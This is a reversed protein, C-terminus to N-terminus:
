FVYVGGALLGLGSIGVGDTLGSFGEFMASGTLRFRPYKKFRVFVGGEGFFGKASYSVLGLDYRIISLGAGAFPEFSVVNEIQKAQSFRHLLGVSIASAGGGIAFMGKVTNRDTIDYLVMPVMYSGLVFGVGFKGIKAPKVVSVPVAQISPRPAPVSESLVVVPKPEPSPSYPIQELPKPQELVQITEVIGLTKFIYGIRKSASVQMPLAIEVWAGDGVVDVVEWVTGTGATSIRASATNPQARIIAGRATTVRFQQEQGFVTDASYGLCILVLGVIFWTKLYKM